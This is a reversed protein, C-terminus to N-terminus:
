LNHHFILAVSSTSKCSFVSKEHYMFTFQFRYFSEFLPCNESYVPHGLFFARRKIQHLNFVVTSVCDSKINGSDEYTLKFNPIFCDLIPQFNASCHSGFALIKPGASSCVVLNKSFHVSKHMRFFFQQCLGENLIERKRLYM